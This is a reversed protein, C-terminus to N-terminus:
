KSIARPRRTPNKKVKESQKKGRMGYNSNFQANKKIREKTKESMKRGLM